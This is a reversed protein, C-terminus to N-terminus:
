FSKVIDQIQSEEAKSKVKYNVLLSSAQGSKLDQTVQIFLCIVTRINEM